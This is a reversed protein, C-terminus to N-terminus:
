ELFQRKPEYPHLGYQVPNAVVAITRGKLDLAGLHAHQDIGYVGGAVILPKMGKKREYEITSHALLIALKAGDSTPSTTGIIGVVLDSNLIKWDQGRFYLKDCPLIENKTYPSKNNPNTKDVRSVNPFPNKEIYSIVRNFRVIQKGDIREIKLNDLTTM